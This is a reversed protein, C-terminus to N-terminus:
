YITYLHHLYGLRVKLGDPLTDNIKIPGTALNVITSGSVSASQDFRTYFWTNRDGQIPSLTPDYGLTKYTHGTTFSVVGTVNLGDTFNVTPTESLITNVKLTSM